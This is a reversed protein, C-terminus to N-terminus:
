KGVASASDPLTPAADGPSSDPARPSNKEEGSTLGTLANAQEAVALIDEDDLQMLSTVRVMASDKDVLKPWEWGAGDWEGSYLTFDGGIGRVLVSVMAMGQYTDKLSDALQRASTTDISRASRLIVHPHDSCRPTFAELSGYRREVADPDLPLYHKIRRKAYFSM